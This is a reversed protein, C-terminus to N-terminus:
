RCGFGEKTAPWAEVGDPTRVYAKTPTADSLWLEWDGYRYGTDRADGPLRASGDYRATLSGPPLVGEPDRAFLRGEKGWGTSLVHAKQWDCHEAGEGSHVETVPVRRGREDTWIEYPGSDTYSEPLEAPDCQASSEPGWGPRGEGGKAVIVAVKTRGDVDLSYLVRDGERREERYGTRPVDPQEIEFYLKLGEEPSAGADGEGWRDAGGKSFVKSECELAREASDSLPGSYATAPASAADDVVRTDENEDCGVATVAVALVGFAVAMLRSRM